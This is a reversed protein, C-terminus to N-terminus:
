PRFAAQVHMWDFNEMRGLSVWGEEEWLEWWRDYEPRAFAARDRGWHLRNRESDFDLAIGWAHTSWSSGGRKKRPSFSGAYHDLRLEQVAALSYHDLVGQLVRELSDAVLEHCAIREVRTGPDWSLRLPYPADIRVLSARAPEGPEGYFARLEAETERPWGNPNAAPGDFDRWRHPLQGHENLFELEEFAFDTQPGWFGDIKGSDLNADRALLQIYATVKRPRSRGLIGEAHDPHLEERRTELAQDLATETKPGLQGDVPGPDFGSEEMHRQAIRVANVPIHM